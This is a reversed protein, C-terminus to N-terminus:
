DHSADIWSLILRLPCSLCIFRTLSRAFSHTLGVIRDMPPDIMRYARIADCRLTRACLSRACTMITDVRQKTRNCHTSYSRDRRDFSRVFPACYQDIAISRDATLSLMSRAHAASRTSSNWRCTPLLIHTYRLRFRTIRHSAIRHRILSRVFRHRRCVWGVTMSALLVVCGVFM